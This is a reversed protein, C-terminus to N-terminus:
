SPLERPTLLISRRAGGRAATAKLSAGIREATMLRQLDDTATLPVGEVEVLVFHLMSRM